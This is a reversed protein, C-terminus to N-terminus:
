KDVGVRDWNPDPEIEEFDKMIWMVMTSDNVPLKICRDPNTILKDYRSPLFGDRNVKRGDRMHPKVRITGVGNVRSVKGMELSHTRGQISSYAIWTGECIERGTMDTVPVLVLNGNNDLIDLKPCGLMMDKGDVDVYIEMAYGIRKIIAKRGKIKKPGSTVLLTPWDSPRLLRLAKFQESRM